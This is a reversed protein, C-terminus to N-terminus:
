VASSEFSDNEKTLTCSHVKESSTTAQRILMSLPTSHTTRMIPCRDSTAMKPSLCTTTSAVQLTCPFGLSTFIKMWRSISMMTMPPRTPNLLHQQTTNKMSLLKRPKKKRTSKKSRRIILSHHLLHHRLRRLLLHPLRHPHTSPRTSKLKRPRKRRISKRKKSTIRRQLPQLLLHLRLRHHRKTAKQFKMPMIVRMSDENKRLKTSMVSRKFCNKRRKDCTIASLSM